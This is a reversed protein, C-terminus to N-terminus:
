RDVATGPGAGVRGAAACRDAGREPRAGGFRRGHECVGLASGHGGASGRHVSCGTEAIRDMVVYALEIGADGRGSPPADGGFFSVDVEVLCNARVGIARVRPWRIPGPQRATAVDASLVSNEVRVGTIEDTFYDGGGIPMEVVTGNCDDWQQAFAEFADNAEATSPFAVVGTTAGIVDGSDSDPLRWSFSAFDTVGTDQYISRQLPSTAGVCDHPSAEADTRLGDAMDSLGGSMEPVNPNPGLRDGLTDAMQDETPLVEALESGTLPGLPLGEAPQVTGDTVTTCASLLLCGAVVLAHRYRHGTITTMPAM